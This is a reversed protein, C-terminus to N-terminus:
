QNMSRARTTEPHFQTAHNELFDIVRRRCAYYEPHTVVDSRRRPRGFPVRLIEGIRAEPGDTMLLLRGALYLAEDIDHTVM